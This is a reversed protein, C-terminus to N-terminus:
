FSQIRQVDEATLFRPWEPNSPMNPNTTFLLEYDGFGTADIFVYKYGRGMTYKWAEWPRTGIQVAQHQVITEAPPGLLIYIRGRDTEWGPRRSSRGGSSYNRNAYTVRDEFEKRFEEPTMRQAPAHRYWFASLYRQKADAGSLMDLQTQEGPTAVYHLPGIVSDLQAETRGEYMMPAAAPVSGAGPPLMHLPVHGVVTDRAFAWRVAMDYSGPPLGTLNAALAEAGGSAGFVRRQPPTRYSFNGQGALAIVAQATDAGAAKRYVEAFLAVDPKEPTIAANVNPVILLSGSQIGLALRNSDPHVRTISSALVVDSSAPRARFAHVTEKAQVEKQSASDQITVTFTYAGPKLRLVLHETSSVRSRLEPPVAAAQVVDSWTQKTLVLGASDRVELTGSYPAREMDGTRAFTLASWPVQVFTEAQTLDPARWFRYVSIDPTPAQQAFGGAPLVALLTAVAPIISFRSTSRRGSAPAGHRHQM